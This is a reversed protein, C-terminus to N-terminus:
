GSYSDDQEIRSLVWDFAGGTIKSSCYECYGSQNIQLPAGCNPCNKEVQAAGHADVSRILTWYESYPRPRAKNGAVVKGTAQEITYDLGSAWIRFTISDFFPDQTIKVMELNTIKANDLKNQLGQNRYAKIWYLQAMYLRDTLFPRAREWQLSSWAQGIEDFILQVREKLAEFAFEPDKEQLAALHEALEPQKITPLDTGREAVEGTLRPGRQEEKMVHVADVFWDFEGSGFVSGCYACREDQSGQNGRSGEVPAGCGPCHFSHIKDPPRSQAGQKRSLQWREWVYFDLSGADHFETYNAEFDVALRVYESQLGRLSVVKMSGVVVGDVNDPTRNGRKVLSERAAASLYPALLSIEKGGQARAQQARSYLGYLFDELLVRSFNPDRSRLPSLDVQQTSAGAPGVAPSPIQGGTSNWSDGPMPRKVAYYYIAGGILALVLPVGVYPIDWVLFLLIGLLDGGGSGGGSHYGGGGGSFGGGSSRGGSYTHGGGPRAAAEGISWICVLGFWFAPNTALRVMWQKLWLVVPHDISKRM